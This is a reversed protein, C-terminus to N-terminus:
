ELVKLKGPSVEFIEGEKLLLSIIKEADACGSKSIVQEYDAGAGSDMSKILNYVNKSLDTDDTDKTGEGINEESVDMDAAAGAAEEATAGPLAKLMREKRELELKRVAIWKTDGINKIIEPFIYVQGNYERPKGIVFVPDGLKITNFMKNEQFDRVSMRGTGDDILVSRYSIDIIPDTVVVAILNIRSVKEGKDTLIYNPLWGSEKVYRGKLLDAIRAKVAIQRKQSEEAM